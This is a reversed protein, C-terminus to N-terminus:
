IFDDESHMELTISVQYDEDEYTYFATNIIDQVEQNSITGNEIQDDFEHKIEDAFFSEADVQESFTKDYSEISYNNDRYVTVIWM